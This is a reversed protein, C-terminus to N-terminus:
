IENKQGSSSLKENITQLAVHIVHTLPPHPLYLNQIGYDSPTEPQYLGGKHGQEGYDVSPFM